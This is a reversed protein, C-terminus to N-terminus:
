INEFSIDTFKGNTVAFVPLAEEGPEVEENSKQTFSFTGTGSEYKTRQM